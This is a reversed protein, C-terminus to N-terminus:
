YRTRTAQSTGRLWSNMHSEVSRMRPATGWYANRQGIGPVSGAPGTSLSSPTEESSELLLRTRNRQILTGISSALTELAYIESATWERATTCADIGLTGWYEGGVNISVMLLSKNHFAELMSRVSGTSTKLQAIL